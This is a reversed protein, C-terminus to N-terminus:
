KTVCTLCKCGKPKIFHNFFEKGYDYTIEEGKKISRRAEIFVRTGEIVAEASPKCAHNVYRAMNYRPSGDITLRPTVEFLYMNYIGDSEKGKLRTGVYEIIREGKKLDVLAFLGLGSYSKGVRVKKVEGKKEKM